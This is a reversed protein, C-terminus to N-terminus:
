LNLEKILRNIRDKEEQSVEVKERPLEQEFVNASASTVPAAGGEVFVKPCTLTIAIQVREGGDDAWVYFKKNVEGIFDDGFVKSIKEVVKEKAINGRAM